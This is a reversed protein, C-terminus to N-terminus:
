AGIYVALLGGAGILGATLLDRVWQSDQGIM